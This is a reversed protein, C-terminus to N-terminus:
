NAEHTKSQITGCCQYVYCIKVYGYQGWQPWDSNPTVGVTPPLSLSLKSLPFQSCLVLDFYLLMGIHARVPTHMQMYVQM